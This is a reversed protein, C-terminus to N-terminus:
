EEYKFVPPKRNLFKYNELAATGLKTTEIRLTQLIKPVKEGKAALCWKGMKSPDYLLIM